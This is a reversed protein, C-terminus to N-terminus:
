SVLRIRNRGQKKCILLADDARRILEELAEGPKPEACGVSATLHVTGQRSSIPSESVARRAREAIQVALNGNADPLILLFEDGGYRSVMDNSRLCGVLRSAVERLVQDGTEHGYDDNIRKFGDLDMVCVSLTSNRAKARTLAARLFPTAGRRNWVRTLPDLMAERRATSLKAILQSQADNLDHALLEQQAM